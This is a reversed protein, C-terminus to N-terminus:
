AAAINDSAPGIMKRRAGCIMSFRAVDAIAHRHEVLAALTTTASSISPAPGANFPTNPM